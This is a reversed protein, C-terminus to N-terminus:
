VLPRRPWERHRPPPTSSFRRRHPLHLPPKRGALTSPIIPLTAVRGRNSSLHLTKQSLDLFINPKPFSSSGGADSGGSGGGGIDTSRTPSRCGGCGGDALGGGGCIATGGEAVEPACLRTPSSGSDRRVGAPTPLPFTTAVTRGFGVAGLFGRAFFCFFVAASADGAITWVVDGNM